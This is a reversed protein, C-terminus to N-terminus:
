NKQNKAHEYTDGLPEEDSPGEQFFQSLRQNLVHEDVPNAPLPYHLGRLMDFRHLDFAVCLADSYGRAARVAARYAVWALLATAAPLALWPGHTALLVASIVTALLLTACLRATTDLQDRADDVVSALRDSLYPYLRPFMTVTLLGYRPGAEDEGARLANGLRTPLLRDESPYADLRDLARSQRWADNKSQVRISATATLRALRRRHLAIGVTSLWRGVKWGDWYGELLRVIGLQFPQLLLSLALVLVIFVLIRGISLGDIWALVMEADPRGAPAGSAVLGLVFLLLLGTPLLGVVAFRLSVQKTRSGKPTKAASPEGGLGDAWSPWSRILPSPGRSTNSPPQTVTGDRSESEPGGAEEAAVAHVTNPHMELGGRSLCARSGYM